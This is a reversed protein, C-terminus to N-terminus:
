AQGKITYKAILAWIGGIAVLVGGLGGALFGLVALVIDIAEDKVRNSAVLAVVGVIVTLLPTTNALANGFTRFSTINAGLATAGLAIAVIGGILLIARSLSYADEQNM